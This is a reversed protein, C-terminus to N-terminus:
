LSGQSKVWRVLEKVNDERASPLIGHGLNFIFGSMDPRISKVQDFIIKGAKEIGSWPGSLLAPDLNGQIAKNLGIQKWATHIPMRWDVGIAHCDLTSLLDLFGSTQTGFYIIPVNCEARLREILAQQHPLVFKSYDQWSLVGAWSDFLQVAQCGAKVQLLLYNTVLESLTQMLHNFAEPCGHMMAKTKVAHDHGTGDIAYAALTFPAGSFGILPVGRSSLAKSTIDVAKITFDVCEEVPRAKLAQVQHESELYHSLVPGSGKAFHVDIGICSLLPLIDAFIIAADFGFQEIPQLTVECALEPDKVLELLEYRERLRRYSAMYRGAQRMLWVPPRSTRESRCAKLFLSEDIHTVGAM